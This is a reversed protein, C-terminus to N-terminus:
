RIQLGQYERGQISTPTFILIELIYMGRYDSRETGDYIDVDRFVEQDSYESIWCVRGEINADRFVAM